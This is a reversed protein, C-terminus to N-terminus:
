MPTLLDILKPRPHSRMGLFLVLPIFGYHFIKTCTPTVIQLGYNLHAVVVAAKDAVISVKERLPASLALLRDFM